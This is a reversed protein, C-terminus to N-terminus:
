KGVQAMTQVASVKAVAAAAAPLASKPATTEILGRATNESPPDDAGRGLATATQSAVAAAMVRRAGNTAPRANAPKVPRLLTLRAQNLRSGDKPTVLGVGVLMAM